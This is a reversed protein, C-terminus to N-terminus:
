FYLSFGYLGYYVLTKKETQILFRRGKFTVAVFFDRELTLIM